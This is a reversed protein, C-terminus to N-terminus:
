PRALESLVKRLKEGLLPDRGIKEAVAAAMKEFGPEEAAAPGLESRLLGRVLDLAAADTDKGVPGVVSRLREMAESGRTQAAGSTAQESEVELAKGTQEPGTAGKPGDVPRHPRPGGQGTAGIKM